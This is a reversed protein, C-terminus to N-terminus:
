SHYTNGEMRAKRKLKLEKMEDPDPNPSLGQKRRENKISNFEKKCEKYREFYGECASKNYGNKSLCKMSSNAEELCYNTNDDRWRKLKDSAM